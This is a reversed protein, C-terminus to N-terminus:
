VLQRQPLSAANCRVRDLLQNLQEKEADSLCDVVESMFTAVVPVIKEALEEGKPTLEVFTVRRDLPNVVRNVLGERVMGDILYTVNASTVSLERGIEGQALREPRTLYILRLIRNRGNARGEGITELRENLANLIAAYTNSIAVNAEVAREDVWQVRSKFRAADKAALNENTAPADSETTM